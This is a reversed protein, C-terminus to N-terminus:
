RLCCGGTPVVQISCFDVPITADTLRVITEEAVSLEVLAESLSCADSQKFRPDTLLACVLTM